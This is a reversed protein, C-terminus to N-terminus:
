GQSVRAFMNKNARIEALFEEVTANLDYQPSWGWEKRARGDDLREPWDRLFDIIRQDPKFDIKAQPIRKVVAKALETARAPFGHINYARLKLQSESAEKLGVLARVADKVYLVPISTEPAIYASYPFGLAPEEIMKGAYASPQAGTRGPGIVPPFRVARFNVGYKRHYQEGLRESCVKSVGYMNVPRNVVDEDVVAPTGPGYVAISSVYIVSSVGLIRAAELINVTGTINVQHSLLLDEESQPPLLSGLHYITDVGNDKVVQFIKAWDRLDGYVAKFQGRLDELLRSGGAIDFIIVKEGQGVLHRTLYCGIFGYGGTILNTPM